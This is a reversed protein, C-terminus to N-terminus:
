PKVAIRGPGIPILLLRAGTEAVFEDVAQKAGQFSGYDDIILVGGPVLRDYLTVLEHRTSEYWDTDLRLIAIEDPAQGPLTEEVTGKVFHIKDDPYPVKEFGQKVDELSAVAWIRATKPQGELLEAVPKGTFTVDKDTPPTMGEFTDFLYLERSTDGIADLTRAVLHMSGGRWVGCEVVAGPIKNEVIYRTALYLAYKKEARTRTYPSVERLIPIAMEDYDVPYGPKAPAPKPPAPPKPAPAKGNQGPRVRVIRYGTTKVLAKNVRSRWSMAAMSTGQRTVPTVARCAM